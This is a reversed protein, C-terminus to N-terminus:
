YKVNLLFLGKSIVARGASERSKQNIINIIEENILNKEAIQLVTGTITRVMGHLFRNADIRFLIFNKVKKWKALSINCVMNETDTKKRSFSTFDYEGILLNSIENLKAIDLNFVPQYHYSYDNYFPSKEDTFLYLYSRKSADFRSHFELPVESIETIAIDEPLISNLSYMFKFLNLDNDIQFNAIQGLAHVGADTRGSGILNVKIGTITEIKSVIEGQVTKVNPQIQWGSYNKGSYQIKLCYNRM